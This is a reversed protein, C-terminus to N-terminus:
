MTIALIGYSFFNELPNFKAIKESQRLGCFNIELHQIYACSAAAALYSSDGDRCYCAMARCVVQAWGWASKSMPSATPLSTPASTYFQFYCIGEIRLIKFSKFNRGM